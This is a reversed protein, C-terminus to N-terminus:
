LDLAFIWSANITFKAQATHLNRVGIYTTAGTDSWHNACILRDAYAAGSTGTGDFWVDMIGVVTYGALTPTAIQFTGVGGAAVTCNPLTKNVKAVTKGRPIVRHQINQGSLVPVWTDSTNNTELDLKRQDIYTHTGDSHVMWKNLKYSYIGHNTGGMGVIFGVRTNTDSRCARVGPEGSAMKIDEAGTFVGIIKALTEKIKLNM